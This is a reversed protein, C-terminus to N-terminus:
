ARTTGCRTPFRGATPCRADRPDHDQLADGPPHRRRAPGRPRGRHRAPDRRRPRPDARRLRRVGTGPRAGGGTRGAQHGRRRRDISEFRSEGQESKVLRVIHKDVMGRRAGCRSPASSSSAACSAPRTPTTSSGRGSRAPRSRLGHHGGARLARPGPAPRGGYLSLGRELFEAFLRGLEQYRDPPVSATPAPPPSTAAAGTPAVAVPPPAAHGAGRGPPEAAQRDSRRNHAAGTGLGAAYLGCLAQNFAVADALKPHNTFLSVVTPTTAWCTTWSARFPRRPDWKSSSAHGRGGAPDRAGERVAGPLGGAPEPGRARAALGPIWPTSTAPSTRSWRSAHAAAIHLRELTLRLPERPRPWSGLTSPM